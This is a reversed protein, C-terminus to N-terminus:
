PPFSPGARCVAAGVPRRRAEDWSPTDEDGAVTPPTEPQMTAYLPILALTADRAQVFADDMDDSPKWVRPVGSADYRFRDEFFARLRSALVTESTSEQVRDLLARWAVMHLRGVTAADEDPTTNLHAARERYLAAARDCADRWVGLVRDWM